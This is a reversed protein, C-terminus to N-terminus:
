KLREVFQQVNITIDYEGVKDFPNELHAQINDLSVLILSFLVPMVYAMGSLCDQAFYAFYPGYLPPLIAIFVECLFDNVTKGERTISL